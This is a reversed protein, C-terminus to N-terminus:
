QDTRGPAARARSRVKVDPRRPHAAAIRPTGIRCARTENSRFPGRIRPDALLLTPSFEPHVTTRQHEVDATVHPRQHHIERVTEGSRFNLDAPRVAVFEECVGPPMRAAGASSQVLGRDVGLQFRPVVLQPVGGVGGRQPGGHVDLPYRATPNTV